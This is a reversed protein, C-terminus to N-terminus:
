RSGGGRAGASRPGRRAAADIASPHLSAHIMLPVIHRDRLNHGLAIHASRRPCPQFRVTASAPHMPQRHEGTTRSSHPKGAPADGGAALRSSRQESQTAHRVIGAWTVKSANVPYNLSVNDQRVRLNRVSRATDVALHKQTVDTASGSSLGRFSRVSAWKEGACSEPLACAAVFCEFM